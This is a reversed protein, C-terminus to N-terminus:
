ELVRFTLALVTTFVRRQDLDDDDCPTALADVNVLVADVTPLRPLQRFHTELEQALGVLPDLEGNGEASLKQQIGLQVVCDRRLSRRSGFDSTWGAPVVSVLLTKLQALSHRPQYSREATFPLSFSGSQLEQLVADAVRVLTAEM